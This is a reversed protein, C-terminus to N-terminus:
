SKKPIKCTTKRFRTSHFNGARGVLNISSDWYYSRSKVEFITGIKFDCSSDNMCEVITGPVGLANTAIKKFCRDINM